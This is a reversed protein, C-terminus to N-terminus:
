KYRNWLEQKIDDITIQNNVLLVFIHYILDSVEYIIEDKNDNKAAIIVESTEEGVKKLIKDIGKEFLYNTYSNDIPKEKREQIREYLKKFIEYHNSAEDEQFINNFFCSEEGTHCANGLPVVEILLTDKDCDYSIKKVIQYNGSTEGKNWLKKRSRSYFWTKKTELTKQFAEQNMYALMLVKKTKIDQIIAPVLGKEDFKIDINLM